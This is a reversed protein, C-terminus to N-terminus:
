QSNFILMSNGFHIDFHVSSPFGGFGFPKVSFKHKATNYCKGLKCVLFSMTIPGEKQAEAILNRISERSSLDMELAETDFGAENMIKSVTRANEMRKDGIFIKM